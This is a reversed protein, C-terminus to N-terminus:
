FRLGGTSDRRILSDAGHFSVVAFRPKLNHPEIWRRVRLCLVGEPHEVLDVGEDLGAFGIRVPPKM